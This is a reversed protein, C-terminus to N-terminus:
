FYSPHRRLSEAAIQQNQVAVHLLSIKKGGLPSQFLSCYSCYSCRQKQSRILIFQMEVWLVDRVSLDDALSVTFAPIGSWDSVSVCSVCTKPSEIARLVYSKVAKMLQLRAPLPSSIRPLMSGESRFWCVPLGKCSPYGSRWGWGKWTGGQWLGGSWRPSFTWTKPRFTFLGTAQVLVSGKVEFEQFIM